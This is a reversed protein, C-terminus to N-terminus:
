RNTKGIRLQKTELLYTGSNLYHKEQLIKWNTKMVGKIESSPMNFGYALIIKKYKSSLDKLLLAQKRHFEDKENQFTTGIQKQGYVVPSIAAKRFYFNYIDPHFTLVMVPLSPDEDLFDAVTISAARFDEKASSYSLGATVEWYLIRALLAISLLYYFKKSIASYYIMSVFFIIVMPAFFILNRHNYIPTSILSKLYFLGIILVSIILLMLLTRNERNFRIKKDKGIPAPAESNSSKNVM